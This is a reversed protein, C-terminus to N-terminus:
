PSDNVQAVAEFKSALNNAELITNNKGNQDSADVM